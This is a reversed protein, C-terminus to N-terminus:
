CWANNKYMYTKQATETFTAKGLGIIEAMRFTRVDTMNEQMFM